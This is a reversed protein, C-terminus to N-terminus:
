QCSLRRESDLKLSFQTSNNFKNGNLGKCATEFEWGKGCLLQVNRCFFPGSNFFKSKVYVNRTSDLLRFVSCPM